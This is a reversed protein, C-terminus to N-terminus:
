LPTSDVERSERSLFSCAPLFILIRELRLKSIPPSAMLMGMRTKRQNRMMPPDAFEGSM